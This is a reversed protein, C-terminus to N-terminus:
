PILSYTYYSTYTGDPLKWRAMIDDPPSFTEPVPPPDTPDPDPPPPTPDYIKMDAYLVWRNKTDNIKLWNDKIYGNCTVVEGANLWLGLDGRGPESMIRTRRIAQYDM